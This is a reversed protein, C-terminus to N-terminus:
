NNESIPSPSNSSIERDEQIRDAELKSAEVGAALAEKLRTLTDELNRYATESIRDAQIQVSTSLDEAIEPLADASKKIIKRTEKGTRPAIILGLLTGMAGGLLMGGVFLGTKNSKSM